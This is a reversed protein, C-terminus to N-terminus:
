APRPRAYVCKRTPVRPTTTDSRSVCRDKERELLELRFHCILKPRYEMELSNGKRKRIRAPYRPYGSRRNGYPLMLSPLSLRFISAEGRLCTDQRYRALVLCSLVLSPLEAFSLGAMQRKRKNATRWGGSLLGSSICPNPRTLSPRRIFRRGCAPALETATRDEVPASLIQLTKREIERPESPAVRPRIGGENFAASSSFAARM